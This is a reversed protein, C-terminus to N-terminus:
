IENQFHSLFIFYYYLLNPNILKIAHRGEKVKLKGFTHLLQGGVQPHGEM